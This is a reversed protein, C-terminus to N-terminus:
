PRSQNSESAPLVSRMQAGLACGAERSGRATLHTGDSKSLKAANCAIHVNPMAAAVQEQARAIDPVKTLCIFFQVTQVQGTTARVDRDLDAFLRQLQAAYHLNGADSEGQMWIIAPVRYQGGSLAKGAAVQSILRLYPATGKSLGAIPTAGRGAASGIRTGPLGRLEFLAGYLPTVGPADINWAEMDVPATSDAFPILEDMAGRPIVGSAFMLGVDQETPITLNTPWGNVARTGLSLSQGYSLIHQFEGAVFAGAIPTPRPASCKGDGGCGCLVICLLVACVAGTLNM